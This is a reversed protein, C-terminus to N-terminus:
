ELRQWSRYDDEAPAATCAFFKVVKYIAWIAFVFPVSALLLGGFVIGVITATTLDQQQGLSM